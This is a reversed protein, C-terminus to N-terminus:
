ATNLASAAARERAAAFAGLVPRSAPTGTSSLSLRQVTSWGVVHPERMRPLQRDGYSAVTTRMSRSAPATTTPFPFMSSNAIPEDVSNLANPAVRL